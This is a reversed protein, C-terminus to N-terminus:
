ASVPSSVSAMAPFRVRIAVALREILGQRVGRGTMTEDEILLLRM